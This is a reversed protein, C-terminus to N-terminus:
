LGNEFEIKYTNVQSSTVNIFPAEFTKTQGNKFNSIIAHGSDILEGNKDYLTVVFNAVSYDEGSRNTGEGVVRLMGFEYRLKVNTFQFESSSRGSSRPSSPAPPHPLSIRRSVDDGLNFTPPNISPTLEAKKRAEEEITKSLGNAIVAM